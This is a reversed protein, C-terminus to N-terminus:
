SRRRYAVGARCWCFPSCRGSGRRVPMSSGGGRWIAVPGLVTFWLHREDGAADAMSAECGANPAEVQWDEMRAGSFGRLSLQYSRSTFYLGSCESPFAAAGHDAPSHPLSFALFSGDVVSFCQAWRGGHSGRELQQSLVRHAADWRIRAHPSSNRARRECGPRVRRTASCPRFQHNAPAIPPMGYGARGRPQLQPIPVPNERSRCPPTHACPRGKGGPEEDLGGAGAGGHREELKLLLGPGAQRTTRIRPGTKGVDPAQGQRRRLATGPRFRREAVQPDVRTEGVGAERSRTVGGGAGEVPDAMGCFCGLARDWRNGNLRSLMEAVASACRRM